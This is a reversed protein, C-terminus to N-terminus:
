KDEQSGAGPKRISLDDTFEPDHSSPCDDFNENPKQIHLILIIM